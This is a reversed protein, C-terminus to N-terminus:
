YRGSTTRLFEKLPNGEPALSEVQAIFNPMRVLRSPVWACFWRSKSGTRLILFTMGFWPTIREVSTIEEWRVKLLLGHGGLGKIGWSYLSVAYAFPVLLLAAVILSRLARAITWIGFATWLAWLLVYITAIPICFPAWFAWSGRYQGLPRDTNM